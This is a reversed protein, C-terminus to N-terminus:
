ITRRNFLPRWNGGSYWLVPISDNPCGHKFAWLLGCQGFGREFKPGCETRRCHGLLKKKDKRSFRRNENAFVNDSPDLEDVALVDAFQEIRQRARDNLVLLGVFIAAGTPRVLPEVNEWWEELKRGTGNFDDVLVIADVTGPQLRSM